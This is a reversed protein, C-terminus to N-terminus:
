SYQNSPSYPSGQPPATNLPQPQQQEDPAAPNTNTDNAEEEKHQETTTQDQEQARSGFLGSFLGKAKQVVGKKAPAQTATNLENQNQETNIPAPEERIEESQDQLNQTALLGTTDDKQNVNAAHIEDLTASAFNQPEEIIINKPQQEEGQEDNLTIDNQAKEEPKNETIDGNIVQSKDDDFNDGYEFPLQARAQKFREFESQINPDAPEWSAEIAVEDGSLNLIEDEEENESLSKNNVSNNSASLIGGLENEDSSATTRYGNGNESQEYNSNEASIKEDNNMDQNNGASSIVENFLNNAENFVEAGDTKESDKSILAMVSAVDTCFDLKKALKEAVEPRNEAAAAIQEPNQKMADRIQEAYKYPSYGDPPANDNESEEINQTSNANSGDIIDMIETAIKCAESIKQLDEPLPATYNDRELQYIAYLNTAIGEAQQALSNLEQKDGNQSIMDEITRKIKELEILLQDINDINVETETQSPQASFEDQQQTQAAILRDITEQIRKCNDILQDIKKLFKNQYQQSPESNTSELPLNGPGKETNTDNSHANAQSSNLDEIQSTATESAN